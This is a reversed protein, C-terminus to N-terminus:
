KERPVVMASRDFVWTFISPRGTHASTDTEASVCLRRAIRSKTLGLLSFRLVRRLTRLNQLFGAGVPEADGAGVFADIHALDSHAFRNQHEGAEPGAFFGLKQLVVQRRDNM